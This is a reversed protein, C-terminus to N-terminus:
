QRSAPRLHLCARRPSHGHAIVRHRLYLRRAGAARRETYSLIATRSGATYRFEQPALVYDVLAGAVVLVGWILAGVFFARGSWAGILDGPSKGQLVRVTLLLAILVVGFSAGASTFFAVPHTPDQLNSTIASTPVGAKIIAFLIVAGLVCAFFLGLIATLVYRWWANQGRAAYALFVQM